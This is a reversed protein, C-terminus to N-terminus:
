RSIIFVEGTTIRTLLLKGSFSNDVSYSSVTGSGLTTVTLLGNSTIEWTGSQGVGWFKNYTTGTELHGTFTSGNRNFSSVSYSDLSVSDLGVVFFPSLKDVTIEQPSKTTTTSTQTTPTPDDKKQCSIIGVVM